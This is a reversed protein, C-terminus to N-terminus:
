FLGRDYRRAVRIELRGGGWGESETCAVVRGRDRRTRDCVRCQTRGM